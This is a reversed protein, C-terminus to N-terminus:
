HWNIGLDTLIERALDIQGENKGAVFGDFPTAFVYKKKPNDKIAEQRAIVKLFNVMDRSLPKHFRKLVSNM